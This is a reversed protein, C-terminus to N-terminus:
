AKKGSKLTEVIRNIEPNTFHNDFKIVCVIDDASVDDYLELDVQSPTGIRLSRGKTDTKKGESDVLTMTIAEASKVKPSTHFMAGGNGINILIGDYEIGDSEPTIKIAARVVHRLFQRKNEM